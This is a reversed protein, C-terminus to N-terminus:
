DIEWSRPRERAAWEQALLGMYVIDHHRGHRFHGERYRAEHVFGMREYVHIARENFAWVRLQVRHLRLEAFAFDLVIEIAETGYGQDRLSRKGIGILLEASGNVADVDMLGALGIPREDDRLRVDFDWLSKGQERQSKELWREASALSEPARTNFGEAFEPDAFWVETAALADKEVPHLYLRKSRLIPRRAEAADANM